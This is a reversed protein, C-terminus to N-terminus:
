VKVVVVVTQSVSVIVELLGHNLVLVGLSRVVKVMVLERPSVPEITPHVEVQVLELPEIEVSLKKVVVTSESIIVSNRKVVVVLPPEVSVTVPLSLVTDIVEVSEQYELPEHYVEVLVQVSTSVMVELLGKKLVLEGVSVKEVVKVSLVPIVKVFKAHVVVQVSEYPEVKVTVSLVVVTELSSTIVMDDELGDKQTVTGDVAVVLKM